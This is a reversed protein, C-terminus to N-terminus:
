RHGAADDAGHGGSGGRGSTGGNDGGADHTAPDDTGGSGTAGASNSSKTGIVPLLGSFIAVGGDRVEYARGGLEDITAAGAPLTGGKASRLRLRYEGANQNDPTM